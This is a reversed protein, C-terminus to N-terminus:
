LANGTFIRYQHTAQAHLFALGDVGHAPPAIGPGYRLDVVFPAAPPDIPTANVVLPVEEPWPDHRTWVSVDYGLWNTGYTWALAPNALAGGVVGIADAPLFGVESGGVEGFTTNPM